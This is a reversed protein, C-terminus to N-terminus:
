VGIVLWSGQSSATGGNNNQLLLSLTTTTLGSVVASIRNDGPIHSTVYAIPTSSYTTPLTIGQTINSNITIPTSVATLGWCIKLGGLNLFNRTGGGSGPNTDTTISGSLSLGTPLVGGGSNFAADNAALINWKAASPQEGFVFNIPVYAM